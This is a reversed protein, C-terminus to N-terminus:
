PLRVNPNETDFDYLMGVCFSNTCALSLTHDIPLPNMNFLLPLAYNMLFCSNSSLCCRLTHPDFNLEKVSLRRSPQYVLISTSILSELNLRIFIISQVSTPYQQFAILLNTGM